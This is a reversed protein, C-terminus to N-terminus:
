GQQALSIWYSHDQQRNVLWGPQSSSSDTSTGAASALVVLTKSGDDDAVSRDSTPYWSLIDPASPEGRM